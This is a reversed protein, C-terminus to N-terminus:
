GCFRDCLIVSSRLADLVASTIDRAEKPDVFGSVRVSCSVVESLEPEPFTGLGAWSEYLQRLLVLLRAVRIDQVHLDLDSFTKGVACTRYMPQDSPHFFLESAQDM